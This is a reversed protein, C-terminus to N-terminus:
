GVKSNGKAQGSHDVSLRKLLDNYLSQTAVWTEDAQNPGAGIGANDHKKSAHIYSKMGHEQKGLGLHIRSTNNKECSHSRCISPAPWSSYLLLQFYLVCAGYGNGKGQEWGMKEMMRMGFNSKEEEWFKQGHRGASKKEKRNSSSISTAQM